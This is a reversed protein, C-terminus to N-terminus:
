EVREAHLALARGRAEDSGEAGGDLSAVTAAWAEGDGPLGQARLHACLSLLEALRGSPRSTVSRPSASSATPTSTTASSSRAHRPRRRPLAAAQRLAPSLGRLHDRARRRVAGRRAALLGGTGRARARAPPRRGLARERAGGRRRDDGLALPGSAALSSGPRMSRASSRPRATRRRSSCRRSSPRRSTSAASSCIASSSATASPTPARPPRLTGAGAADQMFATLMGGVRQVTVGPASLGAELAAGTEELRRYVEPDRLRRLVVLAAATALPNGSLTGAQYVPGAPALEDMVDARGGFAALPLGGGAIKGLM